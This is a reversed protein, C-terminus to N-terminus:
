AGFAEEQWRWRIWDAVKGILEAAAPTIANMVWLGHVAGKSELYAVDNGAEILRAAYARGEDRLPDFEATVVLAPPLRSLDPARLPSVGTVARSM